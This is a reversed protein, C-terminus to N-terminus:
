STFTIGQEKMAAKLTRFGSPGVGHLKKIESESIQALDTMKKIGARALARYFPASLRPFDSVKDM